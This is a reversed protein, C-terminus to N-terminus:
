QGQAPPSKATFAMPVCNRSGIFEPKVRHRIATQFLYISAAASIPTLVLNMRLISILLSVRSPIASGDRSVLNEPAVPSLSIDMKRNLQGRAPKAVKGLQDKSKSCTIVMCM